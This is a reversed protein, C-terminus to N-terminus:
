EPIFGGGYDDEYRSDDSEMDENAEEPIETVSQDKVEGVFRDEGEIEYMDIREKIRLGALFRKWFKLVTLNRMEEHMKAAEDRFGQVVAEIAEQYETAVVIGDLIATGHRGRFEFGTLADAYDVALLRAARSAEPDAISILIIM